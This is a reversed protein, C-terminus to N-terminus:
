EVDILLGWAIVMVDQEHTDSADNSARTLQINVMSDDAYTETGLTVNLITFQEATASMALAAGTESTGANDMAASAAVVDHNVEWFTNTASGVLTMVAITLSAAPTGAINKPLRGQLHLIGETASNLFKFGMVTRNTLVERNPICSATETRIPMLPVFVTPM